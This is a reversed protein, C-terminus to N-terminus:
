ARHVMAPLQDISTFAAIGWGCGKDAARVFGGQDESASASELRKGRFSVSSSWTREIRIETFDARSARLADALRDKM